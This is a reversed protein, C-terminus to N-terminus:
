SSRDFFTSGICLQSSSLFFFCVYSYAFLYLYIFLYTCSLTLKSLFPYLSSCLNMTDPYQSSYTIHVWALFM